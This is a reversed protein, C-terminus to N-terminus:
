SPTRSYLILYYLLYKSVTIPGIVVLVLVSLCIIPFNMHNGLFRAIIAFFSLMPVLSKQIVM